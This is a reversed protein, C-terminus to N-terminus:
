PRDVVALLSKTCFEILHLYFLYTHVETAFALRKREGGSLVKGDDGGGIRVDRREKLGVDRLLRDIKLRISSVHIRGDLKMRAQHPSVRQFHSVSSPFLFFSFSVMFWIHELVTMTDIFMDEQHMFGSHRRMYSSTALAGDVRIDGHVVVDATLKALLLRTRRIKRKFINLSYKFLKLKINSNFFELFAKM